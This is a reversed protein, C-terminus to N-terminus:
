ERGLERVLGDSQGGRAALPDRRGGTLRHLLRDRSGEEIRIRRGGDSGPAEDALELWGSGDVEIDGDSSSRRLRQNERRRGRVLHLRSPFAALNLCGHVVGLLLHQARLTVLRSGLALNAIEGATDVVEGCALAVQLSLEGGSA